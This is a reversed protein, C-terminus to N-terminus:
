TDLIYLCVETLPISKVQSADEQLYPPKESQVSKHSAWCDYAQRYESDLSLIALYDFVKQSHKTMSQHYLFPLLAIHLEKYIM